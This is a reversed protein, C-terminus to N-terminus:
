PRLESPLRLDKRAMLKGNQTRVEFSGRRLKRVFTGEAWGKGHRWHVADGPKLSDLVNLCPTCMGLTLYPTWSQCRECYYHAM